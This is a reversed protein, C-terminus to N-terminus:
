CERLQSTNLRMQLQGLEHAQSALKSLAANITGSGGSDIGAPLRDEDKSIHGPSGAIAATAPV